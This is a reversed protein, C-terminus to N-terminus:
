AAHAQAHRNLPSLYSGLNPSAFSATLDVARATNSLRRPDRQM